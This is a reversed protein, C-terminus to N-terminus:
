LTTYREKLLAQKAYRLPEIRLENLSSLPHPSAIVMIQPPLGRNQNVFYLNDSEDVHQPEKDHSFSANM